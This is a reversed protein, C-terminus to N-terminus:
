SIASSRGNKNEQFDVSGSFVSDKAMFEYGVDGVIWLIAYVYVMPLNIWCLLSLGDELSM